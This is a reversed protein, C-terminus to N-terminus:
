IEVMRLKGFVLKPLLVDRAKKLLMIQKQNSIIKQFFPNVLNHFRQLVSSPPVILSLNSIATKTILPQTSGVDLAEFNVVKQAM